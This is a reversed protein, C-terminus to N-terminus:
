ESAGIKFRLVGLAVSSYPSDESLLGTVDRTSIGAEWVPTVFTLGLPLSKGYGAGSSFGSSLKLWSIPRYDVGVGVFTATLNGAVKNLPTTVDLGAELFKSIRVGGGLRLKTPLDAKREKATTYKFLNQKDTDFQNIIEKFVDYTQVGNSATQQLKQDTAELVNGTWKMSGLDTISAGLRVFKGVEAAVGLDFGHGKGVPSLGSGSEYNFTPSTALSGYNVDFLPSLATYATLNGGSVRIDAIGIGQIYRYGLGASLKFGTKDLVQVGYAVNFENTVAAQISTGDLVGSLNPANPNTPTPNGTTNPVPYYQRIVDANQGNIIIDAANRNLALHGGIRQRSSFALGGLGNPLTVALGFLNTDLNFNLVDDGTLQNVLTAREAAGISQSGDYLLHKFTTKSLSQSGIGAGIEGITFAVKFNTGRGLNAPNIGIAQYDSAFTNVVGGRGTASFNSLENQALVTTPLALGAALLLPHFSAKM